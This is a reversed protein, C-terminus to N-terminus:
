VKKCKNTERNVMCNVLDNVKPDKSDVCRSTVFSKGKASVQNYQKQVCGMPANPSMVPVYKVGSAKAQSRKLQAPTPAKKSVRKGKSPAPASEFVAAMPSEQPSPRGRPVTPTENDYSMESMESDDSDTVGSEAQYFAKVVRGQEDNKFEAMKKKGKESFVHINAKGQCRAPFHRGKSDSYEKNWQCIKKMAANGTCDQEKTLQRCLSGDRGTVPATDSDAMHKDDPMRPPAGGRRLSQRKNRIQSFRSLRNWNVM